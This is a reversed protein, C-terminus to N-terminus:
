KKDDKPNIFPSKVVGFNIVRGDSMVDVPQQPMGIARDLVDNMIKQGNKGLLEKAIFKYFFPYNTDTNAVERMKAYGLQMLILIAENIDSKSAPKFGLKVL